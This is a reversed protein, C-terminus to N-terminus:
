AQHGVNGSRSLRITTGRSGVIPMGGRASARWRCQRMGTGLMMGFMAFIVPNAPDIPNFTMYSLLAIWCIADRFTPRLPRSWSTRPAIYRRDLRILVLAMMILGLTGGEAAVQLFVSESSQARGLWALHELAFGGFGVGAVPHSSLLELALHALFFREISSGRDVAYGITFRAAFDEDGGRLWVAIALTLAIASSVAIVRGLSRCDLVLAALCVAALLLPGRSQSLVIALVASMITAFLLSKTGRSLTQSRDGLLLTGIAIAIGNFWATGVANGFAMRQLDRTPDTDWGWLEHQHLLEQSKSWLVLRSLGLADGLVLFDIACLTIVANACLLACMLGTVAEGYRPGSMSRLAVRFAFSSLALAAVVSVWRYLSSGGWSTVFVSVNVILLAGWVIHAIWGDRDIPLAGHRRSSAHVLLLLAPAAFFLVPVGLGSRLPQEFLFLVVLAAFLLGPM